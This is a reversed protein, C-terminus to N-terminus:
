CLSLPGWLVSAVCFILQQADRLSSQQLLIPTSQDSSLAVTEEERWSPLYRVSTENNGM